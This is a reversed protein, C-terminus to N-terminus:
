VRSNGVLKGEKRKTNKTLFNDFINDFVVKSHGRYVRSNGVLKGEKREDDGRLLLATKQVFPTMLLYHPAPYHPDNLGDDGSPPCISERTGYM